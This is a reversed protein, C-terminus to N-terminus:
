PTGLELTQTLRGKDYHESWARVRFPTASWGLIPDTLHVIDYLELALNAPATIRADIRLQAQRGAEAIAAAEVRTYSNYRQNTLSYSIPRTNPLPAANEMALAAGDEPDTSYTGLIYAFALRRYDSLTAADILNTQGIPYDTAVDDHDNSDSTGPTVAELAFASRSPILLPSAQSGLRYAAGRLSEGPQITTQITAQTDIASNDVTLPIGARAALRRLAPGLYTAGESVAMPRRCRCIGLYALPDAAVVKAFKRGTKTAVVLAYLTESGTDAGFSLTRTIHLLDGVAVAPDTLPLTLDIHHNEYEYAIPTLTATTPTHRVGRYVATDGALYLDGTLDDKTATLAFYVASDTTKIDPLIVTEDVVPDAGFWYGTVGLRVGRGAAAENAIGLCTQDQTLQFFQFGALILGFLAAQTVDIDLPNSFVGATNHLTRLRSQGQGQQRCVLVRHYTTAPDYPAIGAARWNVAYAATTWAGGTYYGFRATYEGTGGNYTSFGIFWPGNLVTGDAIYALCLDAAANGGAYVLVVAGWSAGNDTSERYYVNGNTNNIYFVRITSSAPIRLAAISYAGDLHFVTTVAAAWGAATTPDAVTDQYIDSAGSRFRLVRGDALGVLAAPFYSVQAPNGVLETWAVAPAENNQGRAHVTIAVRARAARVAQAATLAATIPRM